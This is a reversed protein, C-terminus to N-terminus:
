FLLKNHIIIHLKFKIDFNEIHHKKNIKGNESAYM